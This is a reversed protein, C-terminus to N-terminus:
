HQFCAAKFAARQLSSRYYILSKLVKVSLVIFSDSLLVSRSHCVSSQQYIFMGPPQRPTGIVFSLTLCVAFQLGLYLGLFIYVSLSLPHHFYVVTM